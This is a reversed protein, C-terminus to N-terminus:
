LHGTDNELVMEFVGNDRQEFKHIATNGITFLGRNEVPLKLLGCIIAQITGFHGIIFIKIDGIKQM